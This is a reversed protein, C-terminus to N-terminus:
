STEDYLRMDECVRGDGEEGGHKGREFSGSKEFLSLRRRSVREVNILNQKIYLGSSRNNCLRFAM